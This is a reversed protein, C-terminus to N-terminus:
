MARTLNSESGCSDSSYPKREFRWFLACFFRAVGTSQSYSSSYMKQTTSGGFSQKDVRELETAGSTVGSSDEHGSFPYNSPFSSPHKNSEVLNYSLNEKEVVRRRTDVKVEQNQEYVDEVDASVLFTSTSISEKNIPALSAVQDKKANGNKSLSKVRDAYRLTNLTHECSGANPSICSIMM